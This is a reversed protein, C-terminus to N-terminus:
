KPQCSLILRNGNVIDSPARTREDVSSDRNPTQGFTLLALESPREVNDEIVSNRKASLPLPVGDPAFIMVMVMVMFM